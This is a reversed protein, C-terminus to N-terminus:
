MINKLQKWRKARNIIKKLLILNLVLDSIQQIKSYQTGKQFLFIVMFQKNSIAKAFDLDSIKLISYKTKKMLNIYLQFMLHFRQLILWKYDWNRHHNHYSAPGNWLFSQTSFFKSIIKFFIRIARYQLMNPM